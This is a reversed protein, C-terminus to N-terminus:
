TMGFAAKVAPKQLMVITCIGLATGLPLNLLAACAGVMVLVYSSRRGIARGALIMLVCKIALFLAIIGFVVLLVGGILAPPPGGPPTASGVTGAILLAPVVAFGALLLAGLGVLAAYVYFLVSLVNLNGEDQPTLLVPLPPQAVFPPNVRGM